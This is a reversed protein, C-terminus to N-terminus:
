RLQRDANHFVVLHGVCVAGGRGRVAAYAVSICDREHRMVAAVEAHCTAPAHNTAARTLTLGKTAASGKGEWAGCKIALASATDTERTGNARPGLYVVVRYPPSRTSGGASCATRSRLGLTRAVVVVVVLPVHWTYVVVVVVLQAAPQPRSWALKDM